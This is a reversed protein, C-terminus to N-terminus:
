ESCWSIEQDNDYSFDDIHFVVTTGRSQCGLRIQNIAANKNDGLAANDIGKSDTGVKLWAAGNTDDTKVYGVVQTWTNLTVTVAGTEDAPPTGQGFEFRFSNDDDIKLVWAPSAELVVAHDDAGPSTTLYIWFQFWVEDGPADDNEVWATQWNSSCTALISNSATHSQASSQAITGGSVEAGQDWWANVYTEFNDTFDWSTYDCTAANTGGAPIISGMWSYATIPILLILISLLIYKKMNEELGSTDM